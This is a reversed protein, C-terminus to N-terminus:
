GESKLLIGRALVKMWESSANGANSRYKLTPTIARSVFPVAGPDYATSGSQLEMDNDDFPMGVSCWKLVCDVPMVKLLGKVTLASMFVETLRSSETQEFLGSSQTASSTIGALELQPELVMALHKALEYAEPMVVRIQFRRNIIQKHLGHWVVDDLEIKTGCAKMAENWYPAIPKLIDLWEDATSWPLERMFVSEHVAAGILGALFEDETMSGKLLSRAEVTWPKGSKSGFFTKYIQELGPGPRDVVRLVDGDSANSHKMCYAAVNTINNHVSKMWTNLDQHCAVLHQSIDHIDGRPRPWEFTKGDLSGPDPRLPPLGYDQLRKQPDSEQETWSPENRPNKNMAVAKRSAEASRSTSKCIEMHAGLERNSSSVEDYQRKLERYQAKWQDLETEVKNYEDLSIMPPEERSDSSKSRPKGSIQPAQELVTGEKPPELSHPHLEKPESHFNTELRVPRKPGNLKISKKKVSTSPQEGTHQSHDAAKAIADKKPGARNRLVEEAPLSSAEAMTASGNIGISHESARFGLKVNESTTVPVVVGIAQSAHLDDDIDYLGSVDKAKKAEPHEAVEDGGSDEHRKRKGLTDGINTILDQHATAEPVAGTTAGGEQAITQDSTSPTPDDTDPAQSSDDETKCKSGKSKSPPKQKKRYRIKQLFEAPLLDSGREFLEEVFRNKKGEAETSEANESESSPNIELMVDRLTHLHQRLVKGTYEKPAQSGKYGKYSLITGKKKNTEILEDLYKEQLKITRFTVPAQRQTNLDIKTLFAKLAVTRQGINLSRVIEDLTRPAAQVSKAM